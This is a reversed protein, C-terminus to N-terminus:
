LSSRLSPSTTRCPHYSFTSSSAAARQRKRGKRPATTKSSSSSLSSSSSRGVVGTCARAKTACLEEYHEAAYLGGLLADCVDDKKKFTAIRARGDADVLRKAAAIAAKKNAAHTGRCGTGAFTKVARPDVQLVTTWQMLLAEMIYQLILM